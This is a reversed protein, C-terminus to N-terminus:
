PASRPNSSFADESLTPRILSVADDPDKHLITFSRTALSDEPAVPAEAAVGGVTQALLLVALGGVHRLLKM